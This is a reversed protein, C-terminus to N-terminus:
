PRKPNLGDRALRARHKDEQAALFGPWEEPAIFPNPGTPDALVKQRKAELDFFSAHPALFVDCRQTHWFAYSREFDAVIGPYDRNNVLPTGDFLTASSFFLVDLTRGGESVKTTWTTAGPTHGATLHAVMTTGGLAIEEGDALVRDVACPQWRMDFALPGGGGSRILAADPASALVQAGTIRKMMAHGGVHDLHAHSSVLLRVDEIRFGLKGVSDRILPVSEEFASDILIHGAPTTLLFVAMENTGVYHINGVIRFPATPLNWGRMHEPTSLAPRTSVTTAQGAPAVAGRACAAAAILAGLTVSCIRAHVRLM